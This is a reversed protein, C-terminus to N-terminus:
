EFFWYTSTVVGAGVGDITFASVLWSEGARVPITFVEGGETFSFAAPVFSAVEKGDVSVTINLLQDANPPKVSVM